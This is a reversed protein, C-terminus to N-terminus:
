WLPNVLSAYIHVFNPEFSQFKEYSFTPSMAFPMLQRPTKPAFADCYIQSKKKFMWWAPANMNHHHLREPNKTYERALQPDRLAAIM